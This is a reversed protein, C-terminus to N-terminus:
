GEHTTAFGALKEGFFQVMDNREPEGHILLDLGLEEQLRIVREIETVILAKYAEPSKGAVARVRRLEATQPFSGITTTPLLPLPLHARQLPLRQAYPPRTWDAETLAAARQRVHPLQREPVDRWRARASQVQMWEDHVSDVGNRLARALLRLEALWGQECPHVVCQHVHNGILHYVLTNTRDVERHVWRLEGENLPLAGAPDLQV